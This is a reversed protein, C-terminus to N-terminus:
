KGSGAGTRIRTMRALIAMIALMARFLAPRTSDALPILVLQVRGVFSKGRQAFVEAFEIRAHWCSLFPFITRAAFDGFPHLTERLARLFTAQEKSTGGGLWCFVISSGPPVYRGQNRPPRHTIRQIGPLVLTGARVSATEQPGDGSFPIKGMQVHCRAAAAANRRTAHRQLGRASACRSLRKTGRDWRLSTRAATRLANEPHNGARVAEARFVTERGPIPARPAVGELTRWPAM